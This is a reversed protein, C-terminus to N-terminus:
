QKSKLYEEIKVELIKELVSIGFHTPTIDPMDIGNHELFMAVLLCRVAHSTININTFLHHECLYEQFEPLSLIKNM